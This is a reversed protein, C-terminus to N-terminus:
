RDVARQLPQLPEVGYGRQWQVAVLSRCFGHPAQQWVQALEVTVLSPCELCFLICQAFERSKHLKSGVQRRRHDDIRLLARAM